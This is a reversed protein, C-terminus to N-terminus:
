PIRCLNLNMDIYLFFQINPWQPLVWILVSFMCFVFAKNNRNGCSFCSKATMAYGAQRLRPIKKSLSNALLPLRFATHLQLLEATLWPHLQLRLEHRKLHQLWDIVLQNKTPFRSEQKKLVRPMVSRLWHSRTWCASLQEFQASPQVQKM